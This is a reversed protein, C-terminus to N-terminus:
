ASSKIDLYKENLVGVNKRVNQRDLALNLINSEQYVFRACASALTKNKSRKM